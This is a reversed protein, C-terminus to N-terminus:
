LYIHQALCAGCTMTWVDVVVVKGKFDSLSVKEGNVDTYTFNRAPQGALSPYLKTAIQKAREKQDETM